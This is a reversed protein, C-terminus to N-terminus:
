GFLPIGAPNTVVSSGEEPNTFLEFRDNGFIEPNPGTILCNNEINGPWILRLVHIVVYEAGNRKVKRIKLLLTGFPDELLQYERSLDVQSFDLTLTFDSWYLLEKGANLIFFPHRHVPTSIQGFSLSDAPRVDMLIQIFDEDFEKDVAQVRDQLAMLFTDQDKKQFFFFNLILVALLSFISILIILRRSDHKM